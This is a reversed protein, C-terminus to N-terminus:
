VPATVVEGDRKLKSTFQFEDVSKVNEVYDILQFTLSEFSDIIEHLTSRCEEELQQTAEPSDVIARGYIGWLTLWSRFLSGRYFRIPIQDQYSKGSANCLDSVKYLTASDFPKEALARINNLFSFCRQRMDALAWAQRVHEDSYPEFAAPPAEPAEAPLREVFEEPKSPIAGNIYVGNSYNYVTLSPYVQSYFGINGEIATRNDLLANGSFVTNGLNGRVPTDYSRRDIDLVGPLRSVSRNATGLDVGFLHITHFGFFIASLLAFTAVDPGENPIIDNDKTFIVSPTLAGRNIAFVEKYLKLLRPDCTSSCCLSIDALAETIGSEILPLHDNHRELDCHYDPILGAELVRSITSYCCFLTYRDRNEKLLQLHESLSPGSAVVVAHREHQKIKTSTYVKPKLHFYNLAANMTMHIEDVFYGLYNVGKMTNYSHLLEKVYIFFPDDFAVFTFLGDILFLNRITLLSRIQEVAAEPSASVVFDLAKDAGTFSPIIATYDVTELSYALKGLDPEVIFLASPKLFDILPQLQYGLGLGSVVLACGDSKLAGPALAIQHEQLYRSLRLTTWMPELDQNIDHISELTLDHISDSGTADMFLDDTVLSALHDYTNVLMRSPSAAWAQFRQTTALPGGLAEPYLTTQNVKHRLNILQEEGEGKATSAYLPIWPNDQESPLVELFGPNVKQIFAINAAKLAQADM